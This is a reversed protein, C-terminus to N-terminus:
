EFSSEFRNGAKAAPAEQWQKEGLEPCDALTRDTSPCRRQNMFYGSETTGSTIRGHKDGPHGGHHERQGGSRGSHGGSHAGRAHGGGSHGGGRAFVPTSGFVIAISIVSALTLIRWMVHKTTKAVVCRM